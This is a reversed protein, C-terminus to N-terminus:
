HTLLAAARSACQADVRNRNQPQEQWAARSKKMVAMRRRKWAEIHAAAAAQVETLVLQLPEHAAAAGDLWKQARDSVTEDVAGM